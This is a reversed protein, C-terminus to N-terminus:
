LLFLNLQLLALQTYDVPRSGKIYITIGDATIRRSIVRQILLLHQVHVCTSVTLTM